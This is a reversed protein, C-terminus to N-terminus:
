EEAILITRYFMPSNIDALAEGVFIGDSKRYWQRREWGESRKVAEWCDFVGAPTVVRRSGTITITSPRESIRRRWVDLITFRGRWGVALPAAMMLATTHAISLAVTAHDTPLTYSTDTAGNAKTLSEARALTMPVGAPLQTSRRVRLQNGAVQRSIETTVGNTRYSSHWRAPELTEPNLWITDPVSNRTGAPWSTIAMWQGNGGDRRLQVRPGAVTSQTKGGAFSISGYQLNLPRMRRADLPGAAPISTDLTLPAPRRPPTRDAHTIARVASSELYNGGVQIAGFAAAGGLVAWLVPRSITPGNGVRLTRVELQLAEPAEVPLLARAGSARSAMIREFLAAPASAEATAKLAARVDRTSQVTARCRDCDALHGAVRRRLSEAASGAAYRTLALEGPHMLM